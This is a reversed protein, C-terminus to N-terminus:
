NLFKFWTCNNFNIQISNLAYELALKYNKLKLFCAAKNSYMIDSKYQNNILQTYIEDALEYQGEIFLNNANKHLINM